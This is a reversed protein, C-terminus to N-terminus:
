RKKKVKVNARAIASRRGTTDSAVGSVKFGGRDAFDNYQGEVNASAQFGPRDLPGPQQPNFAPPPLSYDQFEIPTPPVSGEISQIPNNPSPGDFPAPTTSPQRSLSPERTM